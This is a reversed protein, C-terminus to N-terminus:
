STALRPTTRAFTLHHLRSEAAVVLLWLCAPIAFSMAPPVVLGAFATQLLARSTEGLDIAQVGEGSLWLVVPLAISVLVYAQTLAFGAVGV